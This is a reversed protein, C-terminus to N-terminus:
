NGGEFRNIGLGDVVGDIEDGMGVVVGDFLTGSTFRVVQDRVEVGCLAVDLPVFQRCRQVDEVLDFPIVSPPEGGESPRLVVPQTPVRQPTPTVVFTGCRAKQFGLL